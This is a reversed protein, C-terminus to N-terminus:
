SIKYLFNRKHFIDASNIAVALDENLKINWYIYKNNEKNYM